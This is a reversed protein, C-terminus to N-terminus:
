KRVYENAYDKQDLHSRNNPYFKGLSRTTSETRAIVTSHPLGAPRDLRVLFPPPPPCLLVNPTDADTKKARPYWPYPANRRDDRDSRKMLELLRDELASVTVNVRSARFTLWACPLSAVRPHKRPSPVIACGSSVLKESVVDRTCTDMTPGRVLFPISKHPLSRVTAKATSHLRLAYLGPSALMAMAVLASGRLLM